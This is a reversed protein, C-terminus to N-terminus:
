STSRIVNTSIPTRRSGNMSHTIKHRHCISFFTNTNKIHSIGIQRLLRAFSRRNRIFNIPHWFLSSHHIIFSSHHIIHNIGLLSFFFNKQLFFNRKRESFVGGAPSKLSFVFIKKCFKKTKERKQTKL